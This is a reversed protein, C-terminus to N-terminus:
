GRRLTGGTLGMAYAIGSQLTGRTVLEGLDAGIEILARAAEPGIGTTVVRAGLLSAARAAQILTSAVQSDVMSVGTIGLIAVQARHHVIGAMLTSMVQQARQSDVVGVLPMVVIEDSIPILPVSASALNRRLM